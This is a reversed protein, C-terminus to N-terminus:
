MDKDQTRKKRIDLTNRQKLSIRTCGKAHDGGNGQPLGEHGQPKISYLATIYYYNLQTGSFRPDYCDAEANFIQTAITHRLHHCSRRPETMKAYHEIRKQIRRGSQPKGRYTGKEVLFLKKVRSSPRM